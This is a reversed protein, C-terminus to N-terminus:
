RKLPRYAPRSPDSSNQAHSIETKLTTTATRAMFFRSSTKSQMASKTEFRTKVANTATHRNESLLMGKMAVANAKRPHSRCDVAIADLRPM